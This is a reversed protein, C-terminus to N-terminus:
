NPETNQCFANYFFAIISGTILGHFISFIMITLVGRPGTGSGPYFADLADMVSQGIGTFHAILGIFLTTIGLAAAFGVALGAVSLKQKM